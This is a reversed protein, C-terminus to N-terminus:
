SKITRLNFGCKKCIFWGGIPTMGEICTDGECISDFDFVIDKIFTSVPWFYPNENVFYWKKPTIKKNLDRVTLTEGEHSEIMSKVIYAHQYDVHAYWRGDAVYKWGKKLLEEHGCVVFKTGKKYETM